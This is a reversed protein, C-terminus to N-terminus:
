HPQQQPGASVRWGPLQDTETFKCPRSRPQTYCWVRQQLQELAPKSGEPASAMTQIPYNLM